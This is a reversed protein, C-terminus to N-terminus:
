VHARGIQKIHKSHSGKYNKNYAQICNRCHSQLGDKASAKKGFANESYTKNCKTCTKM